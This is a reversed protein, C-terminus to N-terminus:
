VCANGKKLRLFHTLTLRAVIFGILCAVLNRWDGRAVLLFGGLVVATRVLLSGLFWLAAHPSGLGRRLTLWLGGFFVLGLAAGGAGMLIWTMFGTIEDM